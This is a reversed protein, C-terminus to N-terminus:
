AFRLQKIYDFTAFFTELHKSYTLIRYVLRRGTNVIQCPLQIYSILFRRFEMRVIDRRATPSQTVLGYWAKLNWALAAIVMYAWNSVLGDSPMRLANVGSKLQGIVNEQNCRDNAFFVIEEKTMERDNTIYFFYRIEDFLRQEGKEVTLNKRVVVMRYTKECFTPRYDFEAVDESRLRINKYEREIIIQEKVNEPRTREETKVEYRAPRNLRKWAGKPLEDALQVLNSRADYGFVFNVKESWRDLNETLSFDTDGRLWVKEFVPAVLAVARDIWQAAQDSSPRNGPRNILYLVENTNALSVILPAYGWVGNYAIGIGEKCEGMTEAITGDVDIIAEKRFSEDQLTWVKKRAENFTEQLRLISPEDFRRLFDGATTPDPIRTAGLANMYSEDNRLKEIDELCLGGSIVNYAINLVHDSEHYPVHFKLLEVDRDIARNLKLRCVLKHIAGIGGYGIARTREAIVYGINADKFMPEPQDDFHKRELRKELNRKDRQLIKHNRKNM